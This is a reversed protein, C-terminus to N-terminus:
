RGQDSVFSSFETGILVRRIEDYNEIMEAPAESETKKFESQLGAASEVNLFELVRSAGSAEDALMWEYRIELADLARLRSRHQELNRRSARLRSVIQDPELRVKSFAIEERSHSTVIGARRLELAVQHMLGNERVIHVVKVDNSRFWELVYPQRVATSWKLLFGVAEFGPFRSYFEGLYGSLIRKRGILRPVRTLNRAALYTNFCYDTNGGGWFLDWLCTVSPHSNILSQLYHSGTRPAGYVVFKQMVVNRQM